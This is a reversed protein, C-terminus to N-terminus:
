TQKLAKKEQKLVVNNKHKNKTCEESKFKSKVINKCKPVRNLMQSVYILLEVIPWIPFFAKIM